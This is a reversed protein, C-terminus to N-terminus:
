VKEPAIYLGWTELAKIMAIFANELQTNDKGALLIDDMYHLCRIHSYVDRIPDLARAVYLQCM